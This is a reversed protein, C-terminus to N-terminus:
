PRDVRYLYHARGDVPNDPELEGEAVRRMGAKELARWSARNAASVPVLVCSAGPHEDWIAQVAARIMQPGLGRGVLQPEGILYDITMAGSPVDILTAVEGLYEPYDALRCRQMLGFPTGDLHALLEESPEEGRVAPGFDRRVAEISPDHNWWRAVHPRELWSILLPFDDETLRRWTIM